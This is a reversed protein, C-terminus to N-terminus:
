LSRTHWALGPALAGRCSFFAQFTGLIGFPANDSTVKLTQANPSPAADRPQTRDTVSGAIRRFRPLRHRRLAGTRGKFFHQFLSSFRHSRNKAKHTRTSSLSLPLQSFCFRASAVIVGSHLSSPVKRHWAPLDRNDHHTKYRQSLRVSNESSVCLTRM